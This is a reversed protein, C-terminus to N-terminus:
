DDAGADGGPGRGAKDPGSGPGPGGRRAGGPGHMPGHHALEWEAFRRYGDDGLLKRIRTASDDDIREHEARDKKALADREVRSKAAAAEHADRREVLLKRLEAQQAATLDPITALAEPSLPGSMPPGHPGPPGPMSQAAAAIGIASLILTALVHKM